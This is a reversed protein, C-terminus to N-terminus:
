AYLVSMCTWRMCSVQKLYQLLTETKVEFEVKKGVTLAHAFGSVSLSRVKRENARREGPGVSAGRDRKSEPARLTFGADSNRKPSRPSNPETSKARRMPPPSQSTILTKVERSRGKSSQRTQSRSTAVSIKDGGVPPPSHTLKMKPEYVKTNASSTRTSRTPPSATDSSKARRLPSASQRKPSTTDKSRRKINTTPRNLPRIPTRSNRQTAQTKNSGYKPLKPKTKSSEALKTDSSSRRHTSLNPKTGRLKNPSSRRSSKYLGASSRSRYHGPRRPKTLSNPSTENSTTKKMSGGNVKGTRRAVSRTSSSLLPKM